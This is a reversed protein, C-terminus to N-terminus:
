RELDFTDHCSNGWFDGAIVAPVEEGSDSMDNEVQHQRYTELNYKAFVSRERIRKGYRLFLWPAICFTTAVAALISTTHNPSLGAFM